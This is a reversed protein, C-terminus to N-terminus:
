PPFCWGLQYLLKVYILLKDNSRSTSLYYPITYNFHHPIHPLFFPEEDLFQSNFNTLKEFIWGGATM